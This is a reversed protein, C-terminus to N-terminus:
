LHVCYRPDLVCRFLTGEDWVHFCYVGLAKVLNWAEPSASLDYLVSPAEEKKNSSVKFDIIQVGSSDAIYETTRPDIDKMAEFYKKSTDEMDEDGECVMDAGDFQWVVDSRVDLTIALESGVLPGILPTIDKQTRRKDNRKRTEQESRAAQVLELMVKRESYLDVHIIRNDPWYMFIPENNCGPLTVVYAGTDSDLDGQLRLKKLFNQISPNEREDEGSFSFTAPKRMNDLFKYDRTLHDLPDTGLSNCFTYEDNLKGSEALTHLREFLTPKEGPLARVSRQVQASVPAQPSSAKRPSKALPPADGLEPDIETKSESDLDSVSQDPSVDELLRRSRKSTSGRASAINRPRPPCLISGTGVSIEGVASDPACANTCSAQSSSMHKQPDLPYKRRIVPGSICESVEVWRFRPRQSIDLGSPKRAQSHRHSWNSWRVRLM